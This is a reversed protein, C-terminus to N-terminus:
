LLSKFNKNKENSDKDKGFRLDYYAKWAEDIKTDYLTNYYTM